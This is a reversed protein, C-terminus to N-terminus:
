AGANAAADNPDIFKAWEGLPMKEVSHAGLMRYSEFQSESFWQDATTQQPFTNDQSHYYFVDASEDDTLVPKVYVIRGDENPDKSYHIRGAVFHEAGQKIKPFDPVEIEVGLDVRIKEIANALGDFVYGADAGNDLVLIFQCRRLIMEYLALNEFHGGDSLCVYPSTQDALAFAEAFLPLVSHGPGSRTWPEEKKLVRWLGTEQTRGPNGM